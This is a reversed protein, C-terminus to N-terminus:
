SNQTEPGENTFCLLQHHHYRKMPKNLIWHTFASLGYSSEDHTNPLHQGKRPASDGHPLLTQASGPLITLIKGVTCCQICAPSPTIPWFQGSLSRFLYSSYQAHSPLSLLGAWPHLSPSWNILICTLSSIERDIIVKKREAKRDIFFWHENLM